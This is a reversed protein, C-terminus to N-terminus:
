PSSTLIFWMPDQKFGNEVMIEKLKRMDDGKPIFKDSPLTCAALALLTYHKGLKFGCETDVRNAPWAESCVARLHRLTLGIQMREVKKLEEPTANPPKPLLREGCYLIGSHDLPFGYVFAPPNASRAKRYPLLKGIPEAPIGTLPYFSFHHLLQTGETTTDLNATLRVRRSKMIFWMPEEKFGNEVMIAKLKRMDDGKPIFEDSARTCAALALLTYQKGRRSGSEIEVRNEPWAESCVECLHNVTLCDQVGEAERREEATSNPLIPHLKEGCYALGGDDLPFGYVFAPPNAYRAQRYSLLKGTPQNATNASLTQNAM